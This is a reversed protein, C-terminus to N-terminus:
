LVGYKKLLKLSKELKEPDMTSDLSLNVKVTGSAHNRKSIGNPSNDGEEDEASEEDEAEDEGEVSEEDKTPSGQASSPENPKPDAL